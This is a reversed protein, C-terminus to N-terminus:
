LHSFRQHDDLRRGLRFRDIFKKSILIMDFCTHPVHAIQRLFLQANVDRVIKLGLVHHNWAFRLHEGRQFLRAVHRVRHKERRILIPLSLGNGPVHGVLNDFSLFRNIADHKVLNRLVRNLLRHRM